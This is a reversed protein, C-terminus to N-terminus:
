KTSVWVNNQGKVVFAVYASVVLNLFAATTLVVLTGSRSWPAFWEIVVLLHVVLDAVLRRPTRPSASTNGWIEVGLAILAGIILLDEFSVLSFLPASMDIGFPAVVTYILLPVTILPFPFM